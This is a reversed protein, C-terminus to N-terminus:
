EGNSKRYEGLGSEGVRAWQATSRSDLTCGNNEQPGDALSDQRMSMTEQSEANQVENYCCCQM